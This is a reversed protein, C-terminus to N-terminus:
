NTEKLRWIGNSTVAYLRDPDTPDAMLATVFTTTLGNNWLRWNAGSDDSRFVQGGTLTAVAAYVRGPRTSALLATVTRGKLEAGARSWSAGGNTSKWVGDGGSAFVRGTGAYVTHPSRPDVAVVTAIERPVGTSVDIWSVGGDDSRLVKASYPPQCDPRAESGALYLVGADSPAVALDRVGCDILNSTLIQWSAGSDTSRQFTRAAPPRVPEEQLYFTSPNSPAARFLSLWGKLPLDPSWTAPPPAAADTRELAIDTPVGDILHSLVTVAFLQSAPGFGLSEVIGNFGPDSPVPARAWSEGRRASRFLLGELSVWLPDPAAPDIALSLANLANMGQNHRTWTAGADDSRFVGGPSASSANAGAYVVGAADVALAQAPQGPQGAPAAWSAGGDTSRLLPGGGGVSTYLTRPSSSVALAQLAGDNSGPVAGAYQWSLGSDTTRYLGTVTQDVFYAYVTQPDAPSPILEVVEEAPLSSVPKWSSGGDTTRFVRGSVAVLATGAPHALAALSQFVDNAPLGHSARQWTAGGDASRWVGGALLFYLHDPRGPDTLVVGGSPPLGASAPHWHTGGDTSKLVPAPQATGFVSLYLTAPHFPDVAVNNIFPQVYILTWSGGGDTTKYLGETTRAYVTGPRAPDATLAAVYGGFPGLPTWPPPAPAAARAASATLLAAAALAVVTRM